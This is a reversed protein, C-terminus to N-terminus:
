TVSTWSVETEKKPEEQSNCYGKFFCIECIESEQKPFIRKKVGEVFEYLKEIAYEEDEEKGKNMTKSQLFVFLVDKSNFKNKKLIYQIIGSQIRSYRKREGTKWDIVLGNPFGIDLIARVEVTEGEIGIEAELEKEIFLPLYNEEGFKGLRVIEFNQFNTLIEQYNKREEEEFMLSNCTIMEQTLKKITEQEVEEQPFYRFYDAIHAHVIEGFIAKRNKVTPIRLVKELEYLRPCTDYLRIQSPYIRSHHKFATRM